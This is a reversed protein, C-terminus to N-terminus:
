PHSVNDRSFQKNAEKSEKSIKPNELKTMVKIRSDIDFVVKKAKDIDLDDLSAKLLDVNASIIRYNKEMTSRDGQLLLLSRREDSLLEQMGLVENKLDQVESENANILTRQSKVYAESDELKRKSADTLKKTKLLKKNLEEVKGQAEKRANERANKIEKALGKQGFTAISLARDYFSANKRIINEAKEEREGVSKEQKELSSERIELVKQVRSTKEQLSYIKSKEALLLTTSRAIEAKLASGRKDIKQSRSDLDKERQEMIMIQNAVRKNEVKL